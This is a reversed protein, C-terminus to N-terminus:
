LRSKVARLNAIWKGNVPRGLVLSTKAYGDEISAFLPLGVEAVGYRGIVAQGAPSVLYQFFRAAEQSAPKSTEPARLAYCNNMLPHTSHTPEFFVTFGSIVGLATQRLLTSRDTLCYAGAADARKLADAPSLVSTRYWSSTAAEDDWPRYGTSEWISRDKFMTASSDVRSHFLHKGSAIREFAQAVSPATAVAAPDSTPGALVFHDHFVCGATRSWGESEALAEQDREYTLALDIYGNLLALQTNRSSNCVWTISGEKGRYTLYDEALERM